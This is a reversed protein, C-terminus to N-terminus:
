VLDLFFKQKTYNITNNIKLKFTVVERMNITITDTQPPNKTQRNKKRRRNVEQPKKRM